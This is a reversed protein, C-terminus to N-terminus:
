IVIVQREPDECDEETEKKTKDPRWPLWHRAERSYEIDLWIRSKPLTKDKIEQDEDIEEDDDDLFLEVCVCVIILSFNIWWIWFGSKICLKIAKFIHVFVTYIFCVCSLASFKWMM